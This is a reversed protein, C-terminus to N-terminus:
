LIQKQQNEKKKEKQKVKKGDKSVALTLGLEQAHYKEGNQLNNKNNSNHASQTEFNFMHFNVIFSQM